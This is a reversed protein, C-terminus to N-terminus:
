LFEFVVIPTSDQSSPVIGNSFIHTSVSLKGLCQSFRNESVSEKKRENREQTGTLSFLVKQSRCYRISYM